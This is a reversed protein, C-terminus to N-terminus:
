GVTPRIEFHRLCKIRLRIDKEFLQSCCTPVFHRFCSFMLKETLRRKAAGSHQYRCRASSISSIMSQEVTESTASGWAAVPPVSSCDLNCPVFYGVRLCIIWAFHFHGPIFQWDTLRLPSITISLLKNVQYKQSSLKQTGPVCRCKFNHTGSGDKWHQVRLNQTLAFVPWPWSWFQGFDLWTDKCWPWCVHWFLFFDLYNNLLKWMFLLSRCRRCVFQYLLVFDGGTYRPSKVISYYHIIILTLIYRLVYKRTDPCKDQGCHMSIDYSCLLVYTSQM